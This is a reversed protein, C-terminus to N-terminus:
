QFFTINLLTLTDTNRTPGIQIGFCEFDHHITERRKISIELLSEQTKILDLAEKNFNEANERETLEGSKDAEDVKSSISYISTTSTSTTSTTTTATTIENRKRSQETSKSPKIGGLHMWHPVILVARVAHAFILVLVLNSLAKMKVSPWCAKAVAKILPNM